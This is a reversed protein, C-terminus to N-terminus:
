SDVVLGRWVKSSDLSWSSASLMRCCPRMRGMVTRGLLLPKSITAPARRNQQGGEVSGCVVLQGPESKPEREATVPADRTFTFWVEEGFGLSCKM